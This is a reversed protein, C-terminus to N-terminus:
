MTEIKKDGGHCEKELPLCPNGSRRASVGPQPPQAEEDSLLELWQDEIVGEVIGNVAQTDFRPALAPSERCLMTRYLLARM